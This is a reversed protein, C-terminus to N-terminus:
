RARTPAFLADIPMSWGPVANGSDAIEGRRFVQPERPNQPTYKALVEENQLDVDWVVLTGAAFYDAIKARIEREAKPGYDNENRV